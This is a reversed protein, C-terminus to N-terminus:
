LVPYSGRVELLEHEVPSPLLWYSFLRPFIHLTDSSWLNIFSSLFPLFSRSNGLCTSPTSIHWKMQSIWLLRESFTDNIGYKFSNLPFKYVANLLLRWSKFLRIHVWSDIRSIQIENSEKGRGIYILEWL